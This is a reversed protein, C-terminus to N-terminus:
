DHVRAELRDDKGERCLSMMAEPLTLPDRDGVGCSYVIRLEPVPALMRRVHALDPTGGTLVGDPGHVELQWRHPGGVRLVLSYQGQAARAAIEADLAHDAGGGMSHALYLPLADIGLYGAIAVALALRPTRLPDRGIFAQVELDYAPYRRAIMANARLM